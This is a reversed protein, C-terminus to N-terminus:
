VGLSVPLLPALWDGVLPMPVGLTKVFVVSCFIVLAVLGVTARWEFRFAESAAASMLILVTMAVVLGLTNLLVGFAVIAGTILLLPKLAAVRIVEGVTLLSRVISAAGFVILLSAIVAPFYGPGMRGASGLPYDSGLRLAFAGSLLYVAGLCFDKPNKIRIKM